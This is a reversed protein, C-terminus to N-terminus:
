DNINEIAMDNCERVPLKTLVGNEGFLEQHITDYSDDPFYNIGMKIFRRLPESYEIVRDVVESGYIEALVQKESEPCEISVNLECNTSFRCTYEM